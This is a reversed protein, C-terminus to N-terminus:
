ILYINLNNTLKDSDCHTMTIETFVVSQLKSLTVHYLQSKTLSSTIKM